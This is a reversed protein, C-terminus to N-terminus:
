AEESLKIESLSLSYKFTYLVIEAVVWVVLELDILLFLFLLSTQTYVSTDRTLNVGYKLVNCFETDAAGRTIMVMM